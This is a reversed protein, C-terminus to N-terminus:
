RVRSLASEAALPLRITFTSGVAEESEVAISGGHSEITHRALALGIGTGGIRGVVNEARHFREFLRPLAAAPIGLGQDRVSVVAWAGAADEETGITLTIAGGSPSYKIANDVLNALVRELRVQADAVLDAVEAPSEGIRLRSTASAAYENHAQANTSAVASVAFYSISRSRETKANM